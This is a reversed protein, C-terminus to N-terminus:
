LLNIDEDIYFSYVLLPSSPHWTVKRVSGVHGKLQKIIKIDELDVVQVDFNRCYCWWSNTQSRFFFSVSESAIAVRKGESDVALSRIAM